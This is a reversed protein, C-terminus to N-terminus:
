RGSLGGGEVLDGHEELLIAFSSSGVSTTQVSCSGSSGNPSPGANAAQRSAAFTDPYHISDHRSASFRRFSAVSSHSQHGPPLLRSRVQRWM